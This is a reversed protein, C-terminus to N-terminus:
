KKETEKYADVFKDWTRAVKKEEKAPEEEMEEEEEAAEEEPGSELLRLSDKIDILEQETIGYMDAVIKDIEEEIKLVRDHKGDATFKHAKKSLESLKIHTKDKANFEPVRVYKLVHTSIATEVSYGAVMLRAISSNLVAALYHAEDEKKTSVFMLKTDPIVLKKGLYIDKQPPMVAAYFMGKGSIKGSIYKWVVKYPKFTYCGIDYVSYFPNSKGWLKHISRECLDKKFYKLFYEYTKPYMTKIKSEKIPFSTTKKHPIIIYSSPSASWKKVNRGRLLPYVLDEEIVTNDVFKVKKKLGPLNALNEILIGNPVNSKIEIWYAGNLATNVGEHADYISEGMAKKLGRIAKERVMMWPSDAKGIIPEMVFDSRVTAKEIEDLSLGFDTEGKRTPTWSITPVPFKTSGKSLILLATRNIAGEFPALEVLDHVAHVESKTALFSRFGAGAQMRFLTFPILLGLRAGDGMYRDLSMTVFLISIDRKVRGLATGPSKPILNYKTWIEKTADRYNEPLDTWNVWPPNGVVYDFRGSFLPAFANKIIKTWIRNQRKKELKMFELFLETLGHLANEDIKMEKLIRSEFEKKSYGLRIAEESITLAKNLQGSDVVSTPIKFKSVFTTVEYVEGGDISYRKEVLISDALYVPLEFDRKRYRILESLAILYNTRSALVALPNLDFGHVNNRITELLTGEDIHNGKKVQEKIRKIALVLFTGSGCAPDLVRKYINGDYGVKDLVLEALWDPTYYEGLDHRIKKPVLYQYLRKMLDKIEEPELEITAPEYNIVTKIVNNVADVIEGNWEDLYWAFYDGDLFNKIGIKAFIGGEEMDKLEDFLKEPSTLYADELKKLYSQFFSDGFLVAVEAAILKMVLAYYTHLSFLLTDYDVHESKLNYLKELGKLKETAYGCVQTFVRKWDNFLMKVRENKTKMLTTYFSRITQKAIVSEPGLDQNLFDVKLPKRRLGRLAELLKLITFPNVDFPGQIDWKQRFRVFGIQFGDLVVGFYKSWLTESVAEDKIYKIAQDVAHKFGRETKLVGPSEYEIIVRGYMADARGGSILTYEYVPKQEIMAEPTEWSLKWETRMKDYVENRLIIEVNIRLSAENESNKAAKVIADAIKNADFVIHPTYEEAM